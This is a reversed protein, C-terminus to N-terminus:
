SLMQVLILRTFASPYEGSFYFSNFKRALKMFRSMHLEGNVTATPSNEASGNKAQQQSFFGNGIGSKTPSFSALSAFTVKHSSCASGNVEGEVAAAATAGCSLHSVTVEGAAPLAAETRSLIM